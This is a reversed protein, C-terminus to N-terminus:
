GRAEPPPPSVGPGSGLFPRLFDDAEAAIRPLSDVLEHGDEVEILRVHRKGRAWERSYGPHLTTDQRGHILLTPVRVDPWPSRAQEADLERLFESHIRVPRKQAYDFTEMWGTQEWQRVREPGFTRRLQEGPRLAPAMLVLACVRADEEAVRCATLGGLSAGFVIAREGPGGLAERVARMMASPDLRELSPQRLDLRELHIGQRAYHEALALGKKSQPGSAFGHLYLWRPSPPPTPPASM